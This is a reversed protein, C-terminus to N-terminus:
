SSAISVLAIKGSPAMLIVPQLSDDALAAPETRIPGGVVSLTHGTSQNTAPDTTSAVQLFSGQMTISAPTSSLFGFASAPASTLISTQALNSHFIGAEPDGPNGLRVYDATSVHFSGPQGVSAGIDLSANPGFVVGKPNILYFSAGPIESALLGNITSPNNGTVRSLVNNITGGPLNTFTASEGTLVNFDSFSHFLNTTGHSSRIEGLTSDIRFNPGTLALPSGPQGLSGDRVIQAQATISTSTEIAVLSFFALLIVCLNIRASTMKHNRM